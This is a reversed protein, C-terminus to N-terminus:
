CVRLINPPLSVCTSICLLTFPNNYSKLHKCNENVLGEFYKEKNLSILRCAFAIMVCADTGTNSEHRKKYMFNEACSVVTVSM